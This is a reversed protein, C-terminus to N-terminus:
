IAEYIEKLNLNKQYPPRTKRTQPTTKKRCRTGPHRAPHYASFGLLEDNTFLLISEKNMSLQKTDFGGVKHLLEGVGHSL